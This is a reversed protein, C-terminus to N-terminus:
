SVLRGTQLSVTRGAYKAVAPDHSVLLVTGGQKHYDEILSFLVTSNAQDLNGTPEDAFLIDPGTIIARIFATRQKEGVSLESPYKAKHESLHCDKLYLDINECQKNEFCAMKINEYVSLYPVLHFQQFVFAVNRRRYLDSDNSNMAYIDKGKFLIQGSDPHILGGASHLLTSKGSGSPGVVSVFEGKEIKLSIDDLATFIDEGKRYRKTINKIELMYRKDKVKIFGV